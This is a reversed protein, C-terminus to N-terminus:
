KIEFEIDFLNTLDHTHLLHLVASDFSVNERHLSRLRGFRPITRVVGSFFAADTRLVVHHQPRECPVLVAQKQVDEGTLYGAAPSASLGADPRSCLDDLIRFTGGVFGVVHIIYRM